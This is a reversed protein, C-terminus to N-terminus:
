LLMWLATAIGFSILTWSSSKTIAGDDDDDGGQGTPALSISPAGTPPASPEASPMETYGPICSNTCEFNYTWDCAGNQENFGLGLACEQFQFETGGSCQVFGTCDNAAKIGTFGASCCALDGTGGSSPQRERTPSPTPMPTPQPVVTPSPTVGPVVPGDIDNCVNRRVAEQVTKSWDGGIDDNAVWFFAGGNCPYVEQLQQIVAAAGPGDLNSGTPGCGAICFGWVVKTPDGQYIDQVLTDFHVLAGNFDSGPRTIGNYYQPMVFDVLGDGALRQLLKFYETDPTLDIDMPVHAVSSGPPLKERLGVTVGELFAIAEAGKTFGRGAQNDQYFYEYDIDVGDLDLEDAIEVLRDVVQAERGYCDEWCSNLDGGVWSGGMGAGGFSLLVKKGAEKWEDILAQNSRNECIPPTAIECTPSCINGSAAWQYSVAFAIMIHTYQDWQDRTPCTQWNGVYAILRSDQRLVVPQPPLTPEPPEETPPPAETPAVPPLTGDLIEVEACNWFREPVRDQSARTPPLPEFDFNIGCPRLGAKSYGNAADGWASNYFDIYEPNPSCTNGAIYRWQLLVNGFPLSDPLKMVYKHTQGDYFDRPPVYARSPYNPDKPAGYLPDRVFELPYEDFCETSPSSTDGCIFFEFYGEHHATLVVEIDIEQGPVYTAQPQFELAGGSCDKPNEYDLITGSGRQTIGCVSSEVGSGLEDENENLSHWNWDILPAGAECNWDAKGEVQNSARWNRSAPLTLAGHADVVVVPLFSAAAVLLLSPSLIMKM